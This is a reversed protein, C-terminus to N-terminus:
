ILLALGGDHKSVTLIYDGDKIKLDELTKNMEATGLVGGNLTVQGDQFSLNNDKLLERVTIDKSVVKESNNLSTGINVKLDM